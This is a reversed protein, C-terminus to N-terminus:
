NKENEIYWNKFMIFNWIITSFDAKNNIHQKWLNKILEINIIEDIGDNSNYVKDNAWDFLDKKLWKGIPNGFGMKQREIYNGKMKKRLLERLFYKTQNNNLKETDRLKMSFEIVRQDVLPSRCEISNFMSSRDVKVFIDDPLYYKMDFYQFNNLNSFSNSFKINDLFTYNQKEDLKVINKYGCDQKIIQFYFDEINKFILSNSVKTVKNGFNFFNLGLISNIKNYKEESIIKLSKSFFSRFKFNIKKLSNYYKDLFLYRNYGYFIEDGGDGSLAVKIKNNISKFLLFTPVQSSDGFPEDYVKHINKITDLLDNQHFELTYHESGINKATEEAFASEDFEPENSKVCFSKIRKKSVENAYFTVLTSDIGGSLLTGNNVDSILHDEIVKSFINDFQNLKNLNEINASDLINREKKIKETNLNNSNLDFSIYMGKEIKFINEYITLPAPIYSLEFFYKLAKKSIKLKKIIKNINRLESTFFLFGDEVYYYLPKQGSVDRSLFIKNLKRDLLALSFMGHLKSLTNQFGKKEILALIVETDSKGRFKFSENILSQKLRQFNYIEGNYILIYRKCKSIMPQRGEESLDNISLRKHSFLIDKKESQWEGSQDPGRHNLLNSMEKIQFTEKDSLGNKKYIGIFGCM